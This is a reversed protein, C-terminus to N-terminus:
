AAAPVRRGSADVQIGVASCYSNNSDLLLRMPKCPSEADPQAMDPVHRSRVELAPDVIDKQAAESQLMVPSAVHFVYKAGASRWRM